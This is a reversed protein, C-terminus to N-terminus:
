PNAFVLWSGAMPTTPVTCATYSAGVGATSTRAKVGSTTTIRLRYKRGAVWTESAQFDLNLIFRATGGASIRSPTSGGCGGGSGTGLTFNLGSGFPSVASSCVLSTGTNGDGWDTGSGAGSISYMKIHSPDFQSPNIGGLELTLPVQDLYLAAATNNTVEVTLTTAERLDTGDPPVIKKDWPAGTAQRFILDASCSGSALTYGSGAGSQPLYECLLHTPSCYWYKGTAQTGCDSYASCSTKIPCKQGTVADDPWGLCAFICTGNVCITGGTCAVICTCTLSNETTSTEGVPCLTCVRDETASPTNSVYSGALCTTWVTCSSANETTSFSGAACASCTRNTVATGDSVVYQGAICTTKAACVTTPDSDHDWTDGGCAVAAATGGACYSGAACASCEVPTTSSGPATQVTGAACSGQPLCSSQNPGSSYTTSACPTCSRDATASPTNSVYSGAECTTWVTCSSIDETTSFSGTACGSCTRDATATGEGSLYQGAECTMWPTCSSANETTSFSGAACVSCARDATATGDSVVYQGAICTTKAACVTAPDSDHDWTDGGCAVAPATGGACYSGAACAGCELPTTNSGPTAQVTGAACSGQPLCSSQNPGSTYTTSACPTCSRDATASPTNSVYSGAECTTWVTCSSINETTSFSGTACGSCTRDATATGANSTYQGALCHTWPSCTADSGAPVFTGAPCTPAHSSDTDGGGGGTTGGVCGALGMVMFPAAM